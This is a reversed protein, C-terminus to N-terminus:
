FVTEIKDVLLKMEIDNKRGNTLVRRAEFTEKKLMEKVTQIVEDKLSVGFIRSQESKLAHYSKLSNM